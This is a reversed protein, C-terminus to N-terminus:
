EKECESKTYSLDITLKLVLEWKSEVCKELVFVNILFIHSFDVLFYKADINLYKSVIVKICLKM